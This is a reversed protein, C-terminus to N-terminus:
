IELLPLATHFIHKIKTLVQRIMELHMVVIKIKRIKTRTSCRKVKMTTLLLFITM